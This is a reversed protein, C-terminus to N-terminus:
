HHSVKPKTGGIINSLDFYVANDIMGSCTTKDFQTVRGTFNSVEKTTTKKTERDRRNSDEEVTTPWVLDRIFGWMVESEEKPTGRPHSM